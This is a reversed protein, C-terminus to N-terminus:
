GAAAGLNGFPSTAGGGAGAAGPGGAPGGLLGGNDAGNPAAPGGAVNGNGPGTPLASSGNIDIQSADNSLEEVAANLKAVEASVLQANQANLGAQSLQNIAQAIQLLVAGKTKIKDIANKQLKIVADAQEAPTAQPSQPAALLEKPNPLRLTTAYRLACVQANFVMPAAIMQLYIQATMARHMETALAPDATVEIPKKGDIGDPLKGLAYAMFAFSRFEETMSGVVRRYVASQVQSGTDIIGKALTATMSAPANEMLNLTGALRDGLTLVKELVQVQGPTVQKDPLFALNENLKRGDMNIAVIRNNRLEIKDPMGVGGASAVGGNQGQMEATNIISALLSDASGEIRKLLWGFGKPFFSGKPDPILKYAYYRRMPGFVLMEPTDVVTKDTWRPKIKVVEAVDDLAITITWPEDIEDGDFDYLMDVEYFKQPEEPDMDDFRPAYDIYHRMEISRAIEYPYREFVHTLRPTREISKANANIIVENVTLFASRFQETEEDEWRKRWGLGTAAMHLCLPDTDVTWDPDETRLQRSIWSALKEGGPESAKALDPESLISNVIRATFQIVASMTLGTSPPSGENSGEQERDQPQSENTDSDISDLYGKAEGLWDSMSKEDIKVLEIVYDALARRQEASLKEALNGIKKPHQLDLKTAPINPKNAM